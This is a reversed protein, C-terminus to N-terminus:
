CVKKTREFGNEILRQLIQMYVFFLSFDTCAVWRVLRMVRFFCYPGNNLAIVFNYLFKWAFWSSPLALTHKTQACPPNSMSIWPYRSLSIWIIHKTSRIPRAMKRNPEICIHQAPRAMKKQNSPCPLHLWWRGLSTLNGKLCACCRCCM